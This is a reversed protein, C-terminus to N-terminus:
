RFGKRGLDGSIWHWDLNVVSGLDLSKHEIRHEKALFQHVGATALLWVVYVGPHM